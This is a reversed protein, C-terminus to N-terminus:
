VNIYLCCSVHYCSIRVLLLVFVECVFVQRSMLRLEDEGINGCDACAIHCSRHVIDFAMVSIHLACGSPLDDGDVDATYGNFYPCLEPAFQPQKHTTPM